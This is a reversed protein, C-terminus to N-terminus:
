NAINANEGMLDCPHFRRVNTEKHQLINNGYITNLENHKREKRETVIMSFCKKKRITMWRIEQTCREEGRGDDM